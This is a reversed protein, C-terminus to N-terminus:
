KPVSFRASWNFFGGQIKLIKKRVKRLGAQTSCQAVTGFIKDRHSINHTEEGEEEERGRM